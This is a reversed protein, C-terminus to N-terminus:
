NTTSLNTFPARCLTLKEPTYTDPPFPYNSSNKKPPLDVQSSFKTVTVKTDSKNLPNNMFCM